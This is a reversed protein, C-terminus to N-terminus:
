EVANEKEKSITELLSKREEESLNLSRSITAFIQDIDRCIEDTIENLRLSNRVKIADLNKNLLMPMFQNVAQKVGGIRLKDLNESIKEEIDMFAANTELNQLMQLRLLKTKIQRIKQNIKEEVM